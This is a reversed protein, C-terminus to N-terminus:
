RSPAVRNRNEVHKEVRQGAGPLHRRVATRTPKAQHSRPEPPTSISSRSSRAGRHPRAVVRRVRHQVAVVGHEQEQEARGPGLEVAPRTGVPALQQEGLPVKVVRGVRERGLREDAAEGVYM